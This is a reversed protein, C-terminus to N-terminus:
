ERPAADHRWLHLGRFGDYAISVLDLDGDGDLDVARAGLHSEAGRGVPREVLTGRGDNEWVEIRKDGRHEALVLDVDGDMDM